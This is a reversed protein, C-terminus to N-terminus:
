HAGKAAQEQAIVLAENGDHLPGLLLDPLFVFVMMVAMIWVPVMIFYVLKWDWKLHMFYTGVLVAKVIAVGLILLFAVVKSLMARREPHDPDTHALWNFFFSSATCVALVVAITMYIKFLNGHGDHEGHGGDHGGHSHAPPAAQVNDGHGGHTDAM